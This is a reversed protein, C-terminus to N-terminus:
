IYGVILAGASIMDAYIDTSCEIPPDFVAHRMDGAPAKGQWKIAGSSGGDRIFWDTAGTGGVVTAWFVKGASAKVTGGATMRATALGAEARAVKLIGTAYARLRDWGTGNFGWLRASACLAPSNVSAVDDGLVRDMDVVFWEKGAGAAIRALVCLATINEGPYTDRVQIYDPAFTIPVDLGIAFVSITGATRSMVLRLEYVKELIVYRYASTDNSYSITADDSLREATAAIPLRLWRVNQYSAKASLRGQIALSGSFKSTVVELVIHACKSFDSRLEKTESADKDKWVEETVIYPIM